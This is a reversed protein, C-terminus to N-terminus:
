QPTNQSDEFNSGMPPQTDSPLPSLPQTQGRPVMSSRRVRLRRLIEAQISDEETEPPEQNSAVRNSPSPTPNIPQLDIPYQSTSALRQMMQQFVTQSM